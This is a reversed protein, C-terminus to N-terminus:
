PSNSDLASDYVRLSEVHETQTWDEYGGPLEVFRAGMVLANDLAKGLMRAETDEDGCPAGGCLRRMSETQFGVSHGTNAATFALYCFHSSQASASTPEACVDDEGLGNNQLVLRNGLLGRAGPWRDTTAAGAADVYWQSSPGAELLDWTAPWSPNRGTPANPDILDWPNVALSTRISAFVREHIVLAQQHCYRDKGPTLGAAALRAYSPADKGARYFPEGHITMCATDVVDRVAHTDGYRRAVEEMLAEYRALYAPLWFKPVCGGLGDIPLVVYVGGDSCDGGGDFLGGFGIRKVYAPARVGARIRLRVKSGAVIADDIAKWGRTGPAFFGSPKTGSGPEELEDWGLSVVNHTIFSAMTQPPPKAVIDRSMVGKLAPRMSTIAGERSALWDNTEETREPGCGINAANMLAVMWLTYARM